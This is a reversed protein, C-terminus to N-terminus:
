GRCGGIIWALLLRLGRSVHVLGAIALMIAAGAVWVFAGTEAVLANVVVLAGWVIACAAAAGALLALSDLLARM